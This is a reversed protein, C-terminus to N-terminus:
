GAAQLGQRLCAQAYIALSLTFFPFDSSPLRLIISKNRVASATTTRSWNVFVQILDYANPCTINLSPNKLIIWEFLVPATKPMKCSLDKKKVMTANTPM